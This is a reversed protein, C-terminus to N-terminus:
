VPNIELPPLELGLGEGCRTATEYASRIAPSIGSKGLDLILAVSLKLAEKRTEQLEGTLHEFEALSEASEKESQKLTVEIMSAEGKLAELARRFKQNFRLNSFYTVLGKEEPINDPIGPMIPMGALVGEAYFGEGVAEENEARELALPATEPELGEESDEGPFRGHFIDLTSKKLKLYSESSKTQTEKVEAIHSEIAAVEEQVKVGDEVISELKEGFESWPFENGSIVDHSKKFDSKEIFAVLEYLKRSFRDREPLIESYRKDSFADRPTGSASITRFFDQYLNGYYLGTAAKDAFGLAFLVAVISCISVVFPASGQAPEKSNTTKPM